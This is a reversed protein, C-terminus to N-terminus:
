LAIAGLEVEAGAIAGRKSIGVMLASVNREHLDDALAEGMPPNVFLRRRFSILRKIRKNYKISALCSRSLLKTKM